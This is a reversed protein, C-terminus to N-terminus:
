GYYSYIRVYDQLRSIREQFEQKKGLAKLMGEEWDSLASHLRRYKKFKDRLHEPKTEAADWSAIAIELASLAKNARAITEKEVLDINKESVPEQLSSIVSKKSAM